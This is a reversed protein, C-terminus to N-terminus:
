AASKTMRNSQPPLSASSDICTWRIRGPINVLANRTFQINGQLTKLRDQWVSLQELRDVTCIWPGARCIDALNWCTRGALFFISDDGSWILLTVGFDPRDYPSGFRRPGWSMQSAMPVRASLPSSTPVKPSKATVEDRPGSPLPLHSIFWRSNSFLSFTLFRRDICSGFDLLWYIRSYLRASIIHQQSNVTRTLWSEILSVRALAGRLKYPLYFLGSRFQVVVLWPAIFTLSCKTKKGAGSSFYVLRQFRQSDNSGPKIGVFGDSSPITAPDMSTVLLVMVTQLRQHIM